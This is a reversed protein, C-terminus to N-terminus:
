TRYFGPVPALEFAEEVVFFAWQLFTSEPSSAFSEHFVLGDFFGFSKDYWPHTQYPFIRQPYGPYMGSYLWWWWFM